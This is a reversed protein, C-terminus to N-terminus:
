STDSGEPMDDGVLLSWKRFLYRIFGSVVITGSVLHLGNYLVPLQTAITQLDFTYSPWIQYGMMSFSPFTFASSGDVAIAVAFNKVLNFPMTIIEWTSLTNTLQGVGGTVDSTADNAKNIEEQHEQKITSDIDGLVSLSDYSSSIFYLTQRNQPVATFISSLSFGPPTVFGSSSSSLLFHHIVDIYLPFSPTLGSSSIRTTGFLYFDFSFTFDSDFYDASVPLILSSVGPPLNDFYPIIQFDTNKYTAGEIPSLKLTYHGYFFFDYSGPNLSVSSDVPTFVIALPDYYTVSASANIVNKGPLSVFSYVPRALKVGGSGYRTVECLIGTRGSAYVDVTFISICLIFSILVTFFTRKMM